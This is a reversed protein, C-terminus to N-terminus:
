RRESIAAVVGILTFVLTALGLLGFLIGCVIGIWAHATGHVEPQEKVKRLGKVGLVVAAIAMGLGVIGVFPICASLSFLGLYYAALAPGNKYPIIVSAADSSSFLGAFEPFSEVPRQEGTAEDVLVANSPLQRQRIMQGVAPWAIGGMQRGDRYVVTVREFPM